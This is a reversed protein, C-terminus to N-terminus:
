IDSFCSPSSTSKNITVLQNFYNFQSVLEQDSDVQRAASVVQVDYCFAATKPEIISPLTNKVQVLQRDMKNELFLWVIANFTSQSDVPGYIDDNFNILLDCSQQKYCDFVIVDSVTDILKLEELQYHIAKISILLYFSLLFAAFLLASIKVLIQKAFFVLGYLLTAFLVHYLFYFPLIHYTDAPRSHFLTPVVFPFCLLITCILRGLLKTDLLKAKGKVKISWFGLLFITTLLLLFLNVVQPISYVYDLFFTTKIYSLYTFVKSAINPWSFFVLKDLSSVISPQYGTLMVRFLFSSAFLVALWCMIRKNFFYYRFLLALCFFAAPLLAAIHWYISFNLILIFILLNSAFKQPLKSKIPDIKLFFLLLLATFLPLLSPQWVWRAYSIFFPQIAFYFALFIGLSEDKVAKGIQWMVLVLLSAVAAHYFFTTAIGGGLRWFVALTWFYLPSNAVGGSSPPSIFFDAEGEALHKAILLDRGTDSLVRATDELNYVRLFLALAFIAIVAFIVKRTNSIGKKIM